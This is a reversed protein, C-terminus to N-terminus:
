LVPVVVTEIVVPSRVYERGTVTSSPPKPGGQPVTSRGPTRGTITIVV